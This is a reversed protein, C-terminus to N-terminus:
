SEAVGLTIIQSGPLDAVFSAAGDLKASFSFAHKIEDNTSDPFVSVYMDRKKAHKLIDEFWDAAESDLAYELTIGCARSMVGVMSHLTGSHARMHRTSDVLGLTLGYSADLSLARGLFLRRFQFFGDPNTTDSIDIRVSRMTTTTDFFIATDNFELASRIINRVVVSITGSDYIPTGTWSSWQYMRCRITAYETLNHGAIAMSDMSIDLGNWTIYITIDSTDSTKAILSRSTKQLNSASLDTLMAPDSGIIGDDAVNDAILKLM